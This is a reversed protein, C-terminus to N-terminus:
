TSNGVVASVQLTLTCLNARKQKHKFGGKAATNLTLVVVQCCHTKSVAKRAFSASLVQETMLIQVCHMSLSCTCGLFTRKIVQDQGPEHAAVRTFGGQWGPLGQSKM